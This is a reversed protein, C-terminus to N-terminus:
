PTVDLDEDDVPAPALELLPDALELLVIPAPYTWAHGCHPCTWGVITGDLDDAVTPLGCRRCDDPGRALRRFLVAPDPVLQDATV